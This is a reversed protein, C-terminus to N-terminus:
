IDFGAERLTVLADVFREPGLIRQTEATGHRTLLQHYAYIQTARQVGFRNILLEKLDASGLRRVAGDRGVSVVM